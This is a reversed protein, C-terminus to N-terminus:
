WGFNLTLPKRVQVIGFPFALGNESPVAVNGDLFTNRWDQVLNQIHCSYLDENLNFNSEGATPTLYHFIKDM